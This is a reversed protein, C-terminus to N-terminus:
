SHREGNATEHPDPIGKAISRAYRGMLKAIDDPSLRGNPRYWRQIWSVMGIIAFSAIRTDEIDFEGDEVGERLLNAVLDDFRRREEEILAIQQPPAYIEAGFYRRTTAEEDISLRAFNRVFAELADARDGPAELAENVSDVSRRVVEAAYSLDSTTGPVLGAWQGDVFLLPRAGANHRVAEVSGVFLTHSSFEIAQAVRCDIALVADELAPSGTVMTGWDGHQFREEGKLKGAFGRALGDHSTALTNVCFCGYEVISPFASADRNVAVVIQPPDATLSMAATATLGARHGNRGTTILNVAAPFDRMAAIYDSTSVPM